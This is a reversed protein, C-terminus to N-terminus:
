PCVGLEPMDIVTDGDVTVQTRGCRKDEFEDAHGSVQVHVDYDGPALLTLPLRDPPADHLWFPELHGFVGTPPVEMVPAAVAGLRLLEEVHPQDGRRELHTRFGGSPWVEERGVDNLTTGAPLVIIMLEGGHEGEIEEPLV